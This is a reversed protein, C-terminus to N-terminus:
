QLFRLIFYLIFDQLFNFFFRKSSKSLHGPPIEPLISVHIGLFVKFKQFFEPIKGLLEPHNEPLVEPSIEEPIKPFFIKPFSSVSYWSSSRLLNSFLPHTELVVRLPIALHIGPHFETSVELLCKYLFKSSNEQM